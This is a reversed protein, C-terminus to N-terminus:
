QNYVNRWMCTNPLASTVSASRDLNGYTSATIMSVKLYQESPPKVNLAVVLSVVKLPYERGAPVSTM